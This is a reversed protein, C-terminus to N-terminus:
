GQFYCDGDRMLDTHVRSMYNEGMSKYPSDPMDPLSQYHDIATLEVESPLINFVVVCVM